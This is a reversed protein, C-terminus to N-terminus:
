AFDKVGKFSFRHIPSPGYKKIAERHELTPYGKNNKFNYHPYKEHMETMFKDRTVKAIISAAAISASKSEGKILTKQPLSLPVEFKGDVLIFDPIGGSLNESSIKMALLSAQLINLKDIEKESVIGLGIQASIRHLEEFLLLRKQHSIIKSDLFSAFNCSSPLIVTAAIVPGALPGRGVEDCGGIRVFGCRAFYREYSFNDLETDSSPVFLVV